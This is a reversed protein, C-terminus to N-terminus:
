RDYTYEESAVMGHEVHFWRQKTGAWTSVLEKRDLGTALIQSGTSRIYTSIGQLHAEDMESAMDDVLMVLRQRLEEGLLAGQGVTMIWSLMKLEGRSCTEVVNNGHITIKVDARHFGRHTFGRKQDIEQDREYIEMLAGDKTWGREYRLTIGDLDTLHTCGETFVPQFRTIYQQRMTDLQESYGALSQTWAKLERPDAGQRLLENRQRLCRNAEEWIRTFSPEVHFVGWNLFRRRLAPGGLLLNVTDPGLVLTPLLMALDSARHIDEGDIRIQREGSRSRQVGIDRSVGPGAVSGRVLCREEDRTIFPDISTSRFTRASGLFYVSELLSTKGSGNDGYLLNIGPSFQLHAKRINRVREVELWALSM